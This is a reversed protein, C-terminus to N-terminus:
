DTYMSIVQFFYEGEGRKKFKYSPSFAHEMGGEGSRYKKLWADYPMAKHIKSVCRAEVEDDPLDSKVEYERYTDGYAKKQGSHTCEHEFM